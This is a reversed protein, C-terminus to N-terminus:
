MPNWIALHCSMSVHISYFRGQRIRINTWSANIHTGQSMWTHKTCCMPFACRGSHATEMVRERTHWSENMHTHYLVDALCVSWQTIDGHSTWAHAMVWEYTHPVVCRCPAGVTHQRWSENMHTGHSMWTHTDCRCPSGVATHMVCEYTHTVACRCSAGVVTHQRWSENVRTGNSMWIHTTCCMPLACRGNHAAAIRKVFLPARLTHCSEHHKRKQTMVWEYTDCARWLCPLECPTAHSM